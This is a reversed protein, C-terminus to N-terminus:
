EAGERPPLNPPPLPPGGVTAQNAGANLGSLPVVGAPTPNAAAQPQKLDRIQRIVYNKEENFQEVGADNENALQFRSLFDALKERNRVLIDLIPKPKHPNAVFVQM